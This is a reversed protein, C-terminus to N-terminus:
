VFPRRWRLGPFRAYDGDTTIWESGSEIALAALYADPILNGRAGVAQCLNAFLEWHRAGPTVVVCHPQSRIREAFALAHDIASPPTFIRPNTVIRLFGSLVLESIGYAEDGQILREIWEKYRQHGSAKTNHAYVLVNVDPLIM